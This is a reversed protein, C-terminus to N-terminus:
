AAGPDAAAAPAGDTVVVIGEMNAHLDCVYHFTGPATLTFSWSQGPEIVPSSLTTGDDSLVDHEEGDMNFWTLTTGAPVTIQPVAFQKEQMPIVNPDAQAFAPAAVAGALMLAASGALTASLARRLFTM